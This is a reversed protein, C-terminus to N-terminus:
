SCGYHLGFKSQCSVKRHFPLWGEHCPYWFLWLFLPAVLLMELFTSCEQVSKYQLATLRDEGWVFLFGLGSSFLVFVFSKLHWWISAIDCHLHCFLVTPSGPTPSYIIWLSSLFATDSCPSGWRGTPFALTDLMCLELTESSPFISKFFHLSYPRMNPLFPLNVTGLFASDM